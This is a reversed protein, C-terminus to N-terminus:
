FEKKEGSIQSFHEWIERPVEKSAEGGKIMSRCYGLTTVARVIEQKEGGTQGKDVFKAEDPEIVQRYYPDNYAALYREYSEVYWDAAANFDLGGAFAPDM